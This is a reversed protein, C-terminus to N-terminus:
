NASDDSPVEALERHLEDLKKATAKLLEDTMVKVREAEDSSLVAFPVSEITTRLGDWNVPQFIPPPYVSTMEIGTFSGAILATEPASILGVPAPGNGATSYMATQPPISPGGFRAMCFAVTSWRSDLPMAVKMTSEKVGRLSRCKAYAGIEAIQGLRLGDLIERAVAIVRQRRQFDELCEGVDVRLVNEQLAIGVARNPRQHCDVLLVGRAEVGVDCTDDRVIGEAVVADIGRNGNEDHDALLVVPCRGRFTLRDGALGIELDDDIGAISMGERQVESLRDVIEPMVHDIVFLRRLVGLLATIGEHGRMHLLPALDSRRKKPYQPPLRSGSPPKPPEDPWGFRRGRVEKVFAEFVDALEDDTMLLPVEVFVRGHDLVLERRAVPM